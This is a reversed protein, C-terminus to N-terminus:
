HGELVAHCLGLGYKQLGYHLNFDDSGVVIEAVDHAIDSGAAASDDGGVVSCAGLYDVGFHGQGLHETICGVKTRAGLAATLEGHLEVM